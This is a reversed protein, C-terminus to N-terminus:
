NKIKFKNLFIDNGFLQISKEWKYGDSTTYSVILNIVENKSAYPNHAGVLIETEDESVVGRWVPLNKQFLTIPDNINSNELSTLIYNTELISNFQSLRYLGRNFYDWAELSYKNKKDFYGVAGWHWIGDAGSLISFVPIAEAMFNEIPYKINDEDKKAHYRLWSFPIIDKKHKQNPNNFKMNLEIIYLIYSLYKKGVLNNKDNKYDYFIYISPTLFDLNSYFETWNESSNNKHLYNYVKPKNDVDYSTFFDNWNDKTKHMGWFNRKVPVDNYSSVKNIGPLSNKTYKLQLNYMETMTKKYTNIYDQKSVGQLENCFEKYSKINSLISKENNLKKETDWVLLDIEPNDATYLRQKWSSTLEEVDNCFPMKEEKWNNKIKGFTNILAAREGSDLEKYKPSSPNTPCKIHSFGYSLPTRYDYNELSNCSNKFYTDNYRPSTGFVISFKNPLNFENPILCWRINGKKGKEPIKYWGPQLSDNQSFLLFKQLLLLFCILTIKKM